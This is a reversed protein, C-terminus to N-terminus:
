SRAPAVGAVEELFVEERHSRSLRTAALRCLARQPGAERWQMEQLKRPHTPAPAEWSQPTHHSCGPTCGRKPGRDVDQSRQGRLLSAPVEIEEERPWLPLWTLRVAQLHGLSGRDLYSSPALGPVRVLGRALLPFPSPEQLNRRSGDRGRFLWAGGLAQSCSCSSERRKPPLPRLGRGRPTLHDPDM